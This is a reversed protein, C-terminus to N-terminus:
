VLWGVRCDSTSGTKVITEAPVMSSCRFLPRPINAGAGWPGIGLDAM